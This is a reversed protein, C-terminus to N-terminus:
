PKHIGLAALLRRVDGRTASSRTVTAWSYVQETGHERACMLELLWVGDHVIVYWKSLQHPLRVLELRWQTGYEDFGCERLWSESIPEEDDAPIFQVTGWFRVPLGCARNACDNSLLSRRSADGDSHPEWYDTMRSGCLPCKSERTLREAAARLEPM